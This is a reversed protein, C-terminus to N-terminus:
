KEWMRYYKLIVEKLQEGVVDCSFQQARSRAADRINNWKQQDYLSVNYINRMCMRLDDVQPEHWNERGTYLHEHPHPMDVVPSMHSKVLAGCHPTIFEEPGTGQTAIAPLGYQLANLHPVGWGEGRSPLCYANCAAYLSEIKEQSAVGHLLYIPPYYKLRLMQKIVQIMQLMKNREEEGDNPGFYTKLVLVVDDQETFEAFYAKLLPDLGKKKAYQFISLFRFGDSPIPAPEADLNLESVAYPVKEIPKIVGCKQAVMKNENTPVLVLDMRNLQAVWEDAIRDTEWCFAGVNFLGPKPEMENPTTHQIIVDINELPRAALERERGERLRSAGDYVVDRTAVWLDQSDLARVYGRAASAYGSFDRLPGVFLIRM